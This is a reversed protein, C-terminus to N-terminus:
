RPRPLGPGPRYDMSLGEHTAPEEEGRKAHAGDGQNGAGRERLVRGPENQIRALGGGRYLGALNQAGVSDGALRRADVGCEFVVHPPVRFAAALEHLPVGVVVIRQAFGGAHLHRVVVPIHVHRDAAVVARRIANGGAEAPAVIKRRGIRDADSEIGPVIM